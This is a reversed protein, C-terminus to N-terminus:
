AGIFRIENVGAVFVSYHYFISHFGEPKSQTKVVYPLVKSQRDFAPDQHMSNLSLNVLYLGSLDTSLCM